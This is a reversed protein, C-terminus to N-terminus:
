QPIDQLPSIIVQLFREYDLLTNRNLELKQMEMELTTQDIRKGEHKVILDDITNRFTVNIDRFVEFLPFIWQDFLVRYPDASSHAVHRYTKSRLFDLKAAGITQFTDEKWTKLVPHQYDYTYEDPIFAACFWVLIYFFSELDHRYLHLPPEESVLLDIAMYPGTGTRHVAQKDPEQENAGDTESSNKDRELGGAISERETRQHNSYDPVLMDAGDQRHPVNVGSTPEPDTSANDVFTALDWDCLVGIVIDDKISFMINNISLDRHLVGAKKYAYYHGAFVM